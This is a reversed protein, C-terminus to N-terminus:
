LRFSLLLQPAVEDVGAVGFKNHFYRLEAGLFVRDPVDWLRGLDLVLQPQTVVETRLSRSQERWRYHRPGIVDLFGRFQMHWSGIQFPLNWVHTFQFTTSLNRDLPDRVTQFAYAQLSFQQFPPLSLDLKVGPLLVAFEDGINVGGVLAIGQVWAGAERLGLLRNLSLSPYLEGYVDWWGRGDTERLVDVFGYVDGGEFRTYHDITLTAARNTRPERSGLRFGGGHLIQVETRSMEVTQARSVAPVALLGAALAALGAAAARIIPKAREM